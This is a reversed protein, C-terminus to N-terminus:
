EAFIKLKNLNVKIKLKQKTLNFINSVLTEHSNGLQKGNVLAFGPLIKKKHM